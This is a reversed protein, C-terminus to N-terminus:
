LYNLNLSLSKQSRLILGFLRDTEITIELLIAWALVVDKWFSNKIKDLQKYSWQPGLFLLKNTEVINLNALNIWPSDSSIYLKRAWTVKLAKIFCEIDIMKLGGQDYPKCMQTRSIKEPKGDRIFNYM